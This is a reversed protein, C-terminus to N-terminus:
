DKEININEKAQWIVADCAYGEFRRMADTYQKRSYKLLGARPNYFPCKRCKRDGHEGCCWDGGQYNISQQVGICRQWLWIHKYIKKAIRAKM